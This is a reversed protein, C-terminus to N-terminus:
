RAPASAVFRDYLWGAFGFVLGAGLGWFVIGALYATLTVDRALSSLDAHIVLGFMTMAAGPAVAIFAACLASVLAATIGAAFGFPRPEILM